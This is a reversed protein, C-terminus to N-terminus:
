YIWRECMGGVQCSEGNRNVFNFVFIINRLIVNVVDTYFENFDLTCCLAVHCGRHHSM